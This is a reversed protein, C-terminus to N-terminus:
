MLGGELCIYLLAHRLRTNHCEGCRRWQSVYSRQVACGMDRIWAGSPSPKFADASCGPWIIPSVRFCVIVRAFLLRKQSILIGTLDNKQKLTLNTWLKFGQRVICWSWGSKAVRNLGGIKRLGAKWASVKIAMMTWCVRYLGPPFFRARSKM